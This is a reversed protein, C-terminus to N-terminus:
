PKMNAWDEGTLIAVPIPVSFNESLAFYSSSDEMTRKVIDRVKTLETTSVEWVLEDHIQLLLHADRDLKLEHLKWETHLMALKCIDAASGQIVFNMAQREAHARAVVDTSCINPFLRRRGIITSLFGQKRCQNILQERFTNLVPCIMNFSNIIHNAEDVGMKLVEALKKTGAGYMISYVIRKTKERDETVIAEFPKNLWLHALTLFIDGPEHFMKILAVDKALHAFIRFEIHMFDAALFKHGPRSIFPSRLLLSENENIQTVLVIPQKPVSQLNPNSSTVRGTAAATQEWSAFVCNGKIHQLMGEVYTTKLKQLHRYQLVVGPLPHFPELLQLTPLSTSRAKRAVTTKVKINAKQDLKLDDYLIKSLQQVSNLQFRKGAEKYASNQLHGVQEELITGLKKLKEKDVCIGRQEMAALIPTLKMEIDLFLKWLKHEQLKQYLVESLKSLLQLQHCAKSELNWSKASIDKDLGLKNVADSFSHPPNDPDLLWCGVKPDLLIWKSCVKRDFKFKEILFILLEQADYCLKRSRGNLVLSLFNQPTNEDKWIKDGVNLRCFTTNGSEVTIALMIDTPTCHTWKSIVNPKNLQSFGERYLMTLGIELVSEEQLKSSNELVSVDNLTIINFHKYINKEFKINNSDQAKGSINNKFPTLFKPKKRVSHTSSQTSSAPEENCELLTAERQVNDTKMNKRTVKMNTGQIIAKRKKQSKFMEPIKLQREKYGLDEDENLGTECTKKVFYMKNINRKTHPVRMKKKSNSTTKNVMKKRSVKYPTNSSFDRHGHSSLIEAETKKNTKIHSGKKIANLNTEMSTKQTVELKPFAESPNSHLNIDPKTCEIENENKIICSKNMKTGTDVENKIANVNREMNTRQIAESIPVPLTENMKSCVNTDKLFDLEIEHKNFSSKNNKTYTTRQISNIDIEFNTKQLMESMQCTENLDSCLYTDSKLLEFENQYKNPSKNGTIKIDTTYESAKLNSEMNTEQFEESMSFIENVDSYLCTDTRQLDFENRHMNYSHKNIKSTHSSSITENCYLKNLSERINMSLIRSETERSGAKVSDRSESNHHLAKIVETRESTETTYECDVEQYHFKIPSGTMNYDDADENYENQVINEHFSLNDVDKNIKTLPPINENLSNERRIDNRLTQMEVCNLYDSDTIQMDCSIESFDDEEFIRVNKDNSVQPRNNHLPSKTSNGEFSKNKMECFRNVSFREDSMLSSNCKEITTKNEWNEQESREVYAHRFSFTKTQDQVEIVDEKNQLACSSSFKNNVKFKNVFTMNVDPVSYDQDVSNIIKLEDTYNKHYQSNRDEFLNEKRQVENTYKFSIHSDDCLNTTNNDLKPFCYYPTQQLGNSVPMSAEFIDTDIDYSSEESQQPCRTILTSKSTPYCITTNHNNNLEPSCYDRIEKLESNVPKCAESSTVTHLNYSSAENEQLIRSPLANKSKSSVPDTKRQTQPSWIFSQSQPVFPSRHSSSCKVPERDTKNNLVNYSLTTDVNPLTRCRQLLNKRLALLVKEGLASLGSVNSPISPALAPTWVREMQLSYVSMCM